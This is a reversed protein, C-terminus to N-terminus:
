EQEATGAADGILEGTLEAAQQVSQKEVKGDDARDKEIIIGLEWLDFGKGIIDMAESIRGLKKGTKIIKQLEDLQSKTIVTNDIKSIIAEQTYNLKDYDVKDVVIKYLKERYEEGISKVKFSFVKSFDSEVKIVYKNNKGKEM